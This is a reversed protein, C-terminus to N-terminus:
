RWTDSRSAVFHIAAADEFSLLPPQAGLWRRLRYRGVVDVDRPLRTVKLQRALLVVVARVPVEFGCAGSLRRAVERARDRAEPLHMTERRDVMVALDNVRVESSGHDKTELLFVGSVGIVLHDLDEGDEGLPISHLVWWGPELRRLERGVKREARAAIRREREGTRADALWGVLPNPAARRLVRAAAAATEGPRRATLDPADSDAGASDVAGVPVEGGDEGVPSM